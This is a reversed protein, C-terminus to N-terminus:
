DRTTSAWCRWDVISSEVCVRWQPESCARYCRQFHKILLYHKSLWRARNVAARAGVL